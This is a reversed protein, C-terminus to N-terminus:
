QLYGFGSLHGVFFYAVASGYPRFYDKLVSFQTKRETNQIASSDHEHKPMELSGRLNENM